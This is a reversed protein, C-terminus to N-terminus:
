MIPVSMPADLPMIDAWTINGSIARAGNVASTVVRAAVLLSIAVQCQVAETVGYPQVLGLMDAQRTVAGSTVAELTVAELTVAELTVAERMGLELTVELLILGAERIVAELTVAAVTVAAM